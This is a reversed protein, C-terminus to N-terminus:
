QVALDVYDVGADDLAHQIKGEMEEVESEDEPEDGRLIIVVKWSM